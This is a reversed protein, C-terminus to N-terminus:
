RSKSDSHDDDPLDREFSVYIKKINLHGMVRSIIEETRLENTCMSLHPSFTDIM